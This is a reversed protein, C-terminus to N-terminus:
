LNTFIFIYHGRESNMSRRFNTLVAAVSVQNVSSSVNKQLRSPTPNELGGRRPAQPHTIRRAVRQQKWVM